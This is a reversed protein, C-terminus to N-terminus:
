KFVFEINKPIVDEINLNNKYEKWQYRRDKMSMLNNIKKSNKPNHIVIDDLIIKNKQKDGFQSYWHDIGWGCLIGDYTNMFETLFRNNFVPFNLEIFNVYRFLHDGIHPIHIKHSLKGRSDHAASGIDIDYEKMIKPINNLDGEVIQADDDFVFIYEYKSVYKYMQKLSQFKSLRSQECYVSLNNIEIYKKNDSGYYNCVIDFNYKTVLNQILSLDDGISTFFCINSNM